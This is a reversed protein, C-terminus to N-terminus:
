KVLLLRRIVSLQVDYKTIPIQNFFLQLSMFISTATPRTAWHKPYNAVKEFHYSKSAAAFKWKVSTLM